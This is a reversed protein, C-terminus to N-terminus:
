QAWGARSFAKGVACSPQITSAGSAIPETSAPAMVAIRRLLM